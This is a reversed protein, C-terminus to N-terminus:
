LFLEMNYEDVYTGDAYKLAKQITGTKIFGFSEYMGIAKANTSVVDLEIKEINHSKAWNICEQMIKGGIGQSWYEKIIVIGLGARHRYRAYSRILGISCQGVIRGNIEAVFWTSDPDQILSQIMEQERDISVQFEGPERALFLSETDVQKMFNIIPEADEVRPTRIIVDSGNRLRYEGM